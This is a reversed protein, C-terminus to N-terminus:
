HLNQGIFTYLSFTGGVKTVGWDKHGKSRENKPTGHGSGNRQNFFYPPFFLNPKDCQELKGNFKKDVWNVLQYM